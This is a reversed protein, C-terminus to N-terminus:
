IAPFHHLRSKEYKPGMRPSAPSAFFYFKSLSNTDSQARFHHLRSKEYKPGMRPSSAPSVLFHFKSLSNTDSQLSLPAPSIEQIKSGDQLTPLRPWFTSNQFCIQTLNHKGRFCKMQVRPRPRSPTRMRSTQPRSAFYVPITNRIEHHKDLTTQNSMHRLFLKNESTHPM